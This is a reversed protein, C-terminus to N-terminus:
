QRREGAIDHPKQYGGWKPAFIVIKGHVYDDPLVDFEDFSQVAVIDAILGDPPTAVSSGLGAIQLKQKRPLLMECTEKGREWHPVTANETHVNELGIETLKDVMYDIANELNQSGSMRSGFKDTLEALSYFLIIKQTNFRSSWPPSSLGAGHVAPIHVM